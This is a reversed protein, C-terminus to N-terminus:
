QQITSCVNVNSAIFHAQKFNDYKIWKVKKLLNKKWKEMQLMKSDLTM